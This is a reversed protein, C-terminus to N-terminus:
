KCTDLDKLSDEISIMGNSVSEISDQLYDLAKTLYTKSFSPDTEKKSKMLYIICEGLEYELHRLIDETDDVERAVYPCSISKLKEEIIDSNTELTNTTQKLQALTALSNQIIRQQDERKSLSQAKALLSKTLSIKSQINSMEKIVQELQTQTSDIQAVASMTFVCFVLIIIKFLNRYIRLCFDLPHLALNFSFDM